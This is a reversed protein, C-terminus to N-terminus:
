LHTPCSSNSTPYKAIARIATYVTGRTYRVVELELINETQKIRVLPVGDDELIQIVKNM